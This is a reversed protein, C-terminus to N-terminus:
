IQEITLQVSGSNNFAMLAVDNAFCTLVGSREPRYIASRGIPFITKPDRDLAGMLMFWDHQPARRLGEFTRMLLGPSAFGEPGCAITWDTWTGSATLRYAQGALLRVGSDNWRNRAHVEMEIEAIADNRDAIM